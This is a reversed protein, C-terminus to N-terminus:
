PLGTSEDAEDTVPEAADDSDSADDRRVESVGAGAELARPEMGMGAELLAEDTFHAALGEDFRIATGDILPPAVSPKSPFSPVVDFALKVTTPPELTDAGLRVSESEAAQRQIKAAIDALRAIDSANLDGPDLAQVGGKGDDDPEVGRL